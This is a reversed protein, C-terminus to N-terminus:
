KTTKLALTDAHEPIGYVHEVGPFSIDLGVSSPGTPSACYCYLVICPVLAARKCYKGYPKSDKHTKFTEEWMDPEDAEEEKAAEPKPEETVENADEGEPADEEDEPTDEEDEPVEEEVIM